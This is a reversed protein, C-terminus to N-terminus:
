PSGDGNMPLPTDCSDQAPSLEPPCSEPFLVGWFPDWYDVDVLTVPEANFAWGASLADCPLSPDRPVASGIDVRSCVAEKLSPYDADDTCLPQGHDDKLQELVALAAKASTLGAFTAERLAWTDGTEVLTGSFVVNLFVGSATLVESFHAVLINDTTVYAQNALYKPAYPDEPTVELWKDFVVWPDSGDWLTETRATSDPGVETPSSAQFRGAYWAVEIDDDVSLGNYARVRIVTSLFGIECMTTLLTTASGFGLEHTRNFLGGSANDRGGPGDSHDATAWQPASCGLGDGHGTCLGDLDYGLDLHRPAAGGDVNDGFDLNRVAVTFDHEDGPGPLWPREPPLALQCAPHAAGDPENGSSTQQARQLGEFTSCGTITALLVATACHRSLLREVM